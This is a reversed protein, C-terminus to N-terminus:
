RKRETGRVCETWRERQVKNQRQVEKEIGSERDRATCRKHRRKKEREWEKEM